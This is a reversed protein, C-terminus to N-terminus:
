SAGHVAEREYPRVCRPDPWGPSQINSARQGGDTMNINIVTHTTAKESQERQGLAMAIANVVFQNLSVGELDAALAAKRHVSKPMRLVTKGSYEVEQLPEPVNRGARLSAEIWSEAVEELLTYAQEPTEGTAICGPFEVIEAFYTGDEQPVVSRMYPRKLYAAPDMPDTTTKLNAM